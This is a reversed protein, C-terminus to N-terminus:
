TITNPIKGKLSLLTDHWEPPIELLLYDVCGNIKTFVPHEWM